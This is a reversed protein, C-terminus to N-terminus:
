YYTFKLLANLLKKLNEFINITDILVYADNYQLEFLPLIFPLLKHCCIFLSINCCVDESHRLSDYVINWREEFKPITMNFAKHEDAKFQNYVDCKFLYVHMKTGTQGNM